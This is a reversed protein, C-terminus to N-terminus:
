NPIRLTFTSGKGVESEVTVDGGHRLAVEKVFALGLGFGSQEQTEKNARRYFKEFVKGADEPPIGCGQDAVRFGVSGDGNAVDIRVTTGSPSYKIANTVLNTLAQYLLLRDAHVHTDETVPAEVTINKAAAVPQLVSMMDRFVPGVEFETKSVKQRGSEIYAIDLFSRILNSLRHSEDIIASLFQQGKAQVLGYKLLMESYGVISTLPTRLEHSVLSVMENKAQNLEHQATADHMSLVLGVRGVPALTVHYIRRADRASVFQMALTKQQSFVEAFAASLKRGDLLSAAYDPAFPADKRYNELRAAAPNQYVVRGAIDSVIIVDEISQLIASNFALFRILEDNFFDVAGLRWRSSRWQEALLGKRHTLRRGSEQQFEDLVRLWGERDPGEVERTIRQRADWEAPSLSSEGWRSLNEIKSDLDRNVLVLKRVGLAPAGVGIAFLFPPFAFWTNAYKMLAWSIGVVVVGSLFAVIYFRIDEFRREFWWLVVCLASLCIFFGFGYPLDGPDVYSGRAMAGFAAPLTRASIERIWRHAFLTEIANAHIEVGSMRRQAGSFPTFWWQDGLGEATAGILVIRDRVADPAARGDMLQWAPIQPFVTQPDGAFRIAMPQPRFVRVGSASEEFHSDVELGAGRIAQFSLAPVFGVDPADPSYRASYIRRTIGDYDPEAHAQGLRVNPKIFEPRPKRWTEREGVKDVRTALVVSKSKGIAEALAADAEPKTADDLLIDLVIVKPHHSEVQEILRALKERSWPWQGVKGVSDEDIAVIVTPGSPHIPGALRLTFDYAISNLQEFYGFFWFLLLVGAAAFVGAALPLLRKM